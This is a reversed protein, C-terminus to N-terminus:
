NATNPYVGTRKTAKAKEKQNKIFAKESATMPKTTAKATPKATAKKAALATQMARATAAEDKLKPVKKTIRAEIIKARMATKGTDIAKRANKAKVASPNKVDSYAGAWKDAKVRQNAKKSATLAEGIKREVPKFGAKSNAPVAPKKASAM